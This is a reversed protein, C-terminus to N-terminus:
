LKTPSPLLHLTLTRGSFYMRFCTKKGNSRTSKALNALNSINFYGVTAHYLRFDNPTHSIGRCVCWLLKGSLNVQQILEGLQQRFIKHNEDVCWITSDFIVDCQVASLGTM